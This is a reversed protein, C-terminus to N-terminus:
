VSKSEDVKPKAKKQENEQKLKAEILTQFSDVAAMSSSVAEGVEVVKKFNAAKNVM